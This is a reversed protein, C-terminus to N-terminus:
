RNVTEGTPATMGTGAPAAPEEDGPFVRLADEFILGEKTIVRGERLQWVEPTDAAQAAAKMLEAAGSRQVKIWTGNNDPEEFQYQFSVRVATPSLMQSKLDLIAFDRAQPKETKLYTTIVQVMTAQMDSHTEYTVAPRSQVVFWTAILCVAFFVASFIKTM